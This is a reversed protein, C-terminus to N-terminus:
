TDVELITRTRYPLLTPKFNESDRQWNDLEEKKSTAPFHEKETMSIIFYKM